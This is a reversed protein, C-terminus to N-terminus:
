SLMQLQCVELAYLKIFVGLFIMFGYQLRTSVDEIKGFDYLQNTRMINGSIMCVGKNFTLVDKPCM